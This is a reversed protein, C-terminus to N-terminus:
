FNGIDHQIIYSEKTKIKRCEKFLSMTNHGLDRAADIAEQMKMEYRTKLVVANLPSLLLCGLGALVRGWWSARLRASNFVMFPCTLALHLSSLLIPFMITGMYIVVVATSFNTPFETISSVGVIHLLTLALLADKVTNLIHSLLGVLCSLSSLTLRLIPKETVKNICHTIMKYRLVEKEMFDIIKTKIGRFRHEEVNTIVAPHINAKLFTIIKASDFEFLEVLIDHFKIFIKKVVSTKKTYQIHLLFTNLNQINNTNEPNERLNQILQDFYQKNEETEENNIEIKKSKRIFNVIQPLKMGLYICLSFCVAAVLVFKANPNESCDKEDLDKDCETINNCRTAITEIEPYRISYCRFTAFPAVHGNEIYTKNCMRYDEDDNEPCQPHGDCLLRPHICLSSNRCRFYDKNTCAICGPGRFECSDQCFHPDDLNPLVDAPPLWSETCIDKINLDRALNDLCWDRSHISLFHTKNPCPAEATYIRDSFDECNVKLSTKPEGTSYMYWPNIQHPSTGNCRIGYGTLEGSDYAWTPVFKWMTNDSCMTKSKTSTAEGKANVICSDKRDSRCWDELIRCDISNRGTKNSSKYCTVGPNGYPDTCNTLYSFDIRTDNIALTNEIKEDSRDLSDYISNAQLSTVKCYSHEKIVDSKNLSAIWIQTDTTNPTYIEDCRLTEKTCIQASCLGQCMTSVTLCQNNGGQCNYRSKDYDVYESNSIDAYCKGHCTTNINLVKGGKCTVDGASGTKTCSADPCCHRTPVLKYALTTGGCDCQSSHFLCKDGCKYYPGTYNCQDEYIVPQNGSEPSSTVAALSFLLVMVAASYALSRM